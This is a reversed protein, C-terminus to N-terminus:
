RKKQKKLFLLQEGLMMNGEEQGIDLTDLM